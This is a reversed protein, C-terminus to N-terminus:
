GFISLSPILFPVIACYIEILIALASLENFVDFFGMSVPKDEFDNYVFAVLVIHYFGIINDGAKM